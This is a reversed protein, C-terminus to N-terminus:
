RPTFTVRVTESGTSLIGSLPDVQVVKMSEAILCVLLSYVFNIVFQQMIISFLLQMILLWLCMYM